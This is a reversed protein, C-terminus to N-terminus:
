RKEGDVAEALAALQDELHFIEDLVLLGQDPTLGELDEFFEGM